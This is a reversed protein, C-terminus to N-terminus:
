GAWDTVWANGGRVGGGRVADSSDEEAGDDALGRRKGGDGVATAESVADEGEERGLTGERGIPATAM